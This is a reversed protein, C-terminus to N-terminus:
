DKSENNLDKRKALFANARPYLKDTYHIVLKYIVWGIFVAFGIPWACVLITNAIVTGEFDKPLTRKELWFIRWGIVSIIALLGVVSFYFVNGM